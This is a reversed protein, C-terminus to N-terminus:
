FKINNFLTEIKDFYQDFTIINNKLIFNESKKILLYFEDYFEILYFLITQHFFKCNQTQKM